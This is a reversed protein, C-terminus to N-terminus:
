VSSMDIYHTLHFYKYLRTDSYSSTYLPEWSFWPLSSFIHTQGLLLPLLISLSILCSFYFQFSSYGTNWWSVHGRKNYNLQIGSRELLYLAFSVNELKVCWLSIRSFLDSYIQFISSRSSPRRSVKQLCRQCVHARNFVGVASSTTAYHAAHRWM